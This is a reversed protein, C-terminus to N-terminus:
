LILSTRCYPCEPQEIKLKIWKIICKDHFLHKCPTERVSVQEDFEEFCICCSSQKNESKISGFKKILLKMELLRLRRELQLRERERRIEEANEESLNNEVSLSTFCCMGRSKCLALMVGMLCIFGVIILVIAALVTPRM